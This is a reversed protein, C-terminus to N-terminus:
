GQGWFALLPHPLLGQHMVLEGSASPLESVQSRQPTPATPHTQQKTVSKWSEESPQKIQKSQLNLTDRGPSQGGAKAPAQAQQSLLHPQALHQDQMGGCAQTLMM